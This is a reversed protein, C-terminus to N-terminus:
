AGGLDGGARRHRTWRYWSGSAIPRASPIPDTAVYLWAELEPELLPVRTRLYSSARRDGPDYDEFPDLKAFVREDLVEFLEGHVVGEGLVLSPWEGMDFLVGAIRCPGLLRLQRRADLEDLQDFGSMLTGYFAIHVTSRTPRM